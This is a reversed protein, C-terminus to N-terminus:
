DTPCIIMSLIQLPSPFHQLPIPIINILQRYISCSNNNPFLCLNATSMSYIDNAKFLGESVIAYNDFRENKTSKSPQM